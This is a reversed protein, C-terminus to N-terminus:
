KMITGSSQQEVMFASQCLAEILKAMCFTATTVLARRVYASPDGRGAVRPWHRYTTLLATQVLDEARGHDGTLLVATRLLASRQRDLRREVHKAGGPLREVVGVGVADDM